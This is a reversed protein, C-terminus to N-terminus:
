PTEEEPQHKLAQDRIEKNAKCYNCFGDLEPHPLCGAACDLSRLATELEVIRAQLNAIQKSLMIVQARYHVDAIRLKAIEANAAAIQRDRETLVAEYKEILQDISM